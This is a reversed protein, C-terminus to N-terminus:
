IPAALYFYCTDTNFYNALMSFSIPPQHNLWGQLTFINYKLDNQLFSYMKEPTINYTSAGKNGFEFLLIPKHQAITQQAGKLVWYEAGEVDMKILHIRQQPAIIADLTTTNVTINTDSELKDYPRKLLGSYAKNTTVLNFNSNGIEYSLAYNYLRIKQQFKKQLAAYLEPIPEFALHQQPSAAVMMQTIKGTHAGVDIGLGNPALVKKIVRKTARDIQENRTIAFPLKTVILKAFAKFNNVPNLGNYKQTSCLKEM